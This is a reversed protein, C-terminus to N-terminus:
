FKKMRYFYFEINMSFYIGKGGEWGRAGVMGSETKLFKVIKSVEYFYFRTNLLNDRYKM